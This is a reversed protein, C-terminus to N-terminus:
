LSKFVRYRNELARQTVPIRPALADFGHNVGPYVHFELSINAAAIRAAYAISEDRFIDLEGVDIYTPPLGELSKARAPAVYPSVDDKGIGDEGLLASWATINDAATWTAFQEVEPNPITNRDDLMPYILIQKALPPSLGRDRALLALATALNGGASEGYTAIRSRDVAFKDANEHLWVLGAYADETQNRHEPALRYDVSFIQVGTEQVMLSMPKIFLKVNGQIMGGGHTHLLAPGPAAEPTWSKPFFRYVSITHGDSSKVQHITHQVDSVDPLAAFLAGYSADLNHRRTQVDHVAPKPPKLAQFPVFVKAFDPDWSLPM